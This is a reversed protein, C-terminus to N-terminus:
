VPSGLWRGYNLTQPEPSKAFALIESHQGQKKPRLQIWFFGRVDEFPRYGIMGLFRSFIVFDDAVEPCCNKSNTLPWHKGNQTLGARGSM